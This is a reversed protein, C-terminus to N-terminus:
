RDQMNLKALVSLRSWGLGFPRSVKRSPLTRPHGFDRFSDSHGDEYRGYDRTFFMSRSQSVTKPIAPATFSRHFFIGQFHASDGIRMAVQVGLFFSGLGTLLSCRAM